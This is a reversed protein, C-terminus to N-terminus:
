FNHMGKDLYVQENDSKESLNNGVLEMTGLNNVVYTGEPGDSGLETVM